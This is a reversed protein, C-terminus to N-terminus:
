FFVQYSVYGNLIVKCDTKEIIFKSVLYIGVSARVTTTDFSEIKYIVDEIASLFELESLEVENHDSDIHNAVKKAYELDPSGNM